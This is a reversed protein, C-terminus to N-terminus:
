LKLFCSVFALLAIFSAELASEFLLLLVVGELLFLSAGTNILLNYCSLLISLHHFPM